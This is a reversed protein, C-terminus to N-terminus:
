CWYLGVVWNPAAVGPLEFKSRINTLANWVAATDPMTNRPTAYRAERGFDCVEVYTDEAVLFLCGSDDEGYGLEVARFACRKLYATKDNEGCSCVLDDWLDEAVDERRWVQGYGMRAYVHVSM